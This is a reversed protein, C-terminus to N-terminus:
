VIKTVVVTTTSFFLCSDQKQVMIAWPNKKAEPIRSHDQMMMVPYWKPDKAGAMNYM